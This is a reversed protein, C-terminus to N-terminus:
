VTVNAKVKSPCKNVRIADLGRKAKRGMMDVLDPYEMLAPAKAPIEEPFRRGEQITRPRPAGGSEGFAIERVNNLAETTTANANGGQVIKSAAASVIDNIPGVANVKADFTALATGSQRALEQGTTVDVQTGGRSLAEPRGKSTVFGFLRKDKALEEEIVVRVKARALLNSKEEQTEGFLTRQTVKTTGAAKAEKILATLEKPTVERRGESVLKAVERQNAFDGPLGKGIIVARDEDLQGTVVKHFLSDDLQAIAAGRSALRGNPSIGFQSLYDITQGSDRLLKAVDLPTGQEGAINMLAGKTRAMQETVGAAESDVRVRLTPYGSRKALALRNHGNVIWVEGQKDQWAYALSELDPNFKAEGLKGTAGTEPDVGGKFQFRAPDVKIQDVPYEYISPVVKEPLMEAQGPLPKAAQAAKMTEIDVLGPKVGGMGPAGGFEEFAKVQASEPGMGTLGLQVSTRPAMEPVKEMRIAQLQKALCGQLINKPVNEGVVRGQTAIWKNLGTSLTRKFIQKTASRVGQKAISVGPKHVFPVQSSLSALEGSRHGNGGM